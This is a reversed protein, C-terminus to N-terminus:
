STSGYRGRFYYNQISAVYHQCLFRFQANL